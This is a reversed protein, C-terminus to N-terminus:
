VTETEFYYECSSLFMFVGQVENNLFRQVQIGRRQIRETSGNMTVSLSQLGVALVPDRYLLSRIRKALISHVAIGQEENTDKVYGQVGIIYRQLTPEAAAQVSPPQGTMEFSSEDPTWTIPYVGISQTGDSDRLARQYVRLDSDITKMRAFVLSCVNNPFVETATTIV